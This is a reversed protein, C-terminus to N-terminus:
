FKKGGFERVLRLGDTFDRSTGEGFKSFIGGLLDIEAGTPKYMAWLPNSRALDSLGSPLWKDKLMEERLKKETKYRAFDTKKKPSGGEIQIFAKFQEPLKDKAWMLVARRPQIGIAKALKLWLKLSPLFYGKEIKFIAPGSVSYDKGLQDQTVKLRKRYRLLQQAILKAM